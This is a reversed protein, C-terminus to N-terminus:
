GNQHTYPPIESDNQNANEQHSLAKFSEKLAEQGNL